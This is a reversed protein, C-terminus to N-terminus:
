GAWDEFLPVDCLLAAYPAFVWLYTRCSWASHEMQMIEVGMESAMAPFSPDANAHNPGRSFSIPGSTKNIPPKRLVICTRGVVIREM